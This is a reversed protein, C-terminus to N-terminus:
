EVPRYGEGLAARRCLHCVTIMTDCCQPSVVHYRLTRASLKTGCLGCHASDISHVTAPPDIVPTNVSDSQNPMPHVQGMSDEGRHAAAEPAPGAPKHSM